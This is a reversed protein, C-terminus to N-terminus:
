PGLRATNGTNVFPQLILRRHMPLCVTEKMGVLGHFSFPYTDVDEERALLRSAFVGLGFGFVRDPRVVAVVVVVVSQLSFVLM